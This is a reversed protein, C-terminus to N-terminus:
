RRTTSRPDLIDRLGDGILNASLVVLMVALGPFITLFPAVLIFQRGENLMAGWSPTPPQVGLGLFSLGAEGVIASGIGFSAEVIIPTILNPLLHHIVTHWTGCGIAGAAVIFERERLELVQGRALRAYSVWNVACLALVVNNLSPGLIAMMALALLIGPFALLIDIVRTLLEEAFGGVYGCFTGLLTGIVLSVSVTVIGVYLSVRTGYVLRSLVDRGMRDQGLWHATNPPALGESMTYRLPDCPALLPAFIAGIVAFLLICCGVRFLGRGMNPRRRVAKKTRRLNM